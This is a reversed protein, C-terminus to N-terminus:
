TVKGERAQRRRMSQVAELGVHKEAFWSVPQNLADVLAVCLHEAIDRDQKAYRLQSHLHEIEDHLGRRRLEQERVYDKDAYKKALAKWAKAWRHKRLLARGDADHDDTKKACRAKLYLKERRLAESLAVQRDIEDCLVLVESVSLGKSGQMRAYAMLNLTRQNM